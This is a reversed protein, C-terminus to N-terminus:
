TAQQIATIVGDANITITGNVGGGTLKLGVTYTGAGPGPGSAAVGLSTRAAAATIANTGGNAVPLPNLINYIANKTPVETKGSWAVGFVEDLVELASRASDDALRVQIVTGSRKLAPFAATSGFLKSLAPLVIETWASGDSRRLIFTDTEVYIATPYAAAPYSALNTATDQILTFTSWSRQPPALEVDPESGRFRAPPDLASEILAHVEARSIPDNIGALAADSADVSEGARSLPYEQDTQQVAYADRDILYLRWAPDLLPTPQGDPGVQLVPADNPPIPIPEGRVLGAVAIQVSSQFTGLLPPGPVPPLPPIPAVPLPTYGSLAISAISADPGFGATIVTDIPM